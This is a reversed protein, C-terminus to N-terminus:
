IIIFIIRVVFFVVVVAIFLIAKSLRLQRLWGVITEGLLLLSWSDFVSEFVLLKSFITLVPTTVFALFVHKGITVHHRRYTELESIGRVRLVSIVIELVVSM